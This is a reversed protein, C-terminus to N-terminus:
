LSQLRDEILITSFGIKIGLHPEGPLLTNKFTVLLRVRVSSPPSSPCIRRKPSRLTEFPNPIEGRMFRGGKVWLHFTNRCTEFALGHALHPERIEKGEAMM